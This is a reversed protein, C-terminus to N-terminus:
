VQSPTEPNKKKRRNPLHSNQRVAAKEYALAGPTQALAAVHSKYVEIARRVLLSVSVVDGEAVVGALWERLTKLTRETTVDARFTRIAATQGTAHRRSRGALAPHTIPNFAPDHM